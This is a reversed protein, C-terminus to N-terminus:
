PYACPVFSHAVLWPGIPPGGYPSFTFKIRASPEFLERLSCIIIKNERQSFLILDGVLGFPQGFPSPVM